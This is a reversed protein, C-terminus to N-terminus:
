EVLQRITKDISTWHGTTKLKNHIWQLTGESRTPHSLERLTSATKIEGPANCTLTSSYSAKIMKWRFEGSYGMFLNGVEDICDM